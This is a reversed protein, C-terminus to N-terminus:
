KWRFHEVIKAFEEAHESATEENQNALETFTMLYVSGRRIAAIQTYRYANEALTGTYVYKKAAASDLLMDETSELAFNDFILNFESQYSTWWDDITTDAYPLNWVMVSISAPDQASRYASVAGGTQDVVWEDPVFLDYDVIENSARLMGMPVDSNSACGALMLLALLATLLSRIKM